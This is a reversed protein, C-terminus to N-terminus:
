QRWRVPKNDRLLVEVTHGKLLHEREGPHAFVVAWRRLWTKARRLFSAEPGHLALKEGVQKAVSLRCFLRAHQGFGSVRPTLRHPGQRSHSLADLLPGVFLVFGEGMWGKADRWPLGVSVTKLPIPFSCM